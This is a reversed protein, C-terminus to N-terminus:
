NTIFSTVGGKPIVKLINGETDFNLSDIAIERLLTNNNDKIRHYLIYDQNNETFVTHHGPGLTTSDKSTSLIPDNVGETWPGYPTDGVAYRVMYTEDICKGESYMLYYKNNKKMMFPAEFYHPPTIDKIANADFSIMDENLPVIFCHGNKWNLGSGWYLYAQGDDDIFAEADIMHYEPFMDGKILPTNDAKANKWPGLPAESVGAWIESGVSVYMYFRGNKGKIVCPAWVRSSTSITTQCDELTPWNIKMPEWNIFDSSEFVALEDGGWPDITAYVYYKGNHKVMTPDAFYGKIVPNSIQVKEVTSTTSVVKQKCAQILILFFALSLIREIGIYIRNKM